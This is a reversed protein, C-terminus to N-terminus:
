GVLEVDDEVGVWSGVLEVRVVAVRGGCEYEFSTDGDKRDVSGSESALIEMKHCQM